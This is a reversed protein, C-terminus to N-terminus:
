FRFSRTSISIEFRSNLNGQAPDYFLMKFTIALLTDLIEQDSILHGQIDRGQKSEWRKTSKNKQNEHANEHEESGAILCVPVSEADM